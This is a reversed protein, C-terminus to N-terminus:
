EATATATGHSDVLVYEDNKPWRPLGDELKVCPRGDCSTISVHRLAELVEAQVQVRQARKVNSWSFYGTAALAVVAAIAVAGLSQWGLFRSRRDLTQQQFQLREAMMQFRQTTEDIARVAPPVEAALSERVAARASSALEAQSEAVGERFATATRQLESSAKDCQQSLHAALLAANAIFDELKKQDV